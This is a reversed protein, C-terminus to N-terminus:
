EVIKWRFQFFSGIHVSEDLLCDLAVKVANGQASTKTLRESYVGRREGTAQVHPLNPFSVRLAGRGLGAESERGVRVGGFRV